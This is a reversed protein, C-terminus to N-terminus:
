RAPGAPDSALAAAIARLVSSFSLRRGLFDPLGSLNSEGFRDELQLLFVAVGLDEDWLLADFTDNPLFHPRSWGCAHALMSSVTRVLEADFGDKRWADRVMEPDRSRLISDIRRRYRAEPGVFPIGRLVYADWRGLTSPDFPSLIPTMALSPTM